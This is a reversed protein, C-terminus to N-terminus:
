HLAEPERENEKQARHGREGAATRTALRRERIEACSGPNRWGAVHPHSVDILVSTPLSLMLPPLRWAMNRWSSM